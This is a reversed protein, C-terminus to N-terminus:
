EGTPVRQRPIYSRQLPQALTDPLRAAGTEGFYVMPHGNRLAQEFIRKLRRGGIMSSSGRKVTVDDGAVAVPRGNIEGLGGIKGDGPTTAADAPRESRAFTGIEHFTGPDM